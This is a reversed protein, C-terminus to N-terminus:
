RDVQSNNSLGALRRIRAIEFIREFENPQERSRAADRNNNGVQVRLKQSLLVISEDPSFKDPTIHPRCYQKMIDHYNGNMSRGRAGCIELTYNACHELDCKYERPFILIISNHDFLSEARNVDLLSM